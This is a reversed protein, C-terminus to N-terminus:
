RILIEGQINSAIDTLKEIESDTFDMLVWDEILINLNEPRGVGIRYRCFDKSGLHEILSEVGNHGASGSGIQKKVEGFSFDVDDNVVILDTLELKYYSLVKSVAEGSKNMFTAHKAFITKHGDVQGTAIDANFRNDHKWSDAGIKKALADVLMFGVNHRTREYKKGLNGLGIILKIM